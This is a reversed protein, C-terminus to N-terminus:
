SRTLFDTFRASRVMEMNLDRLNEPDLRNDKGSAVIVGQVNKLEKVVDETTAEKKDGALMKFLSNMSQGILGIPSLFDMFSLGDEEATPAEQGTLKKYDARNKATGQLAGGAPAAAVAATEIGVPPGMQVPVYTAVEPQNPTVSSSSSPKAAEPKEDGDGFGLWGLFDNIKEFIVGLGKALKGMIWVVPKLFWTLLKIAGVLVVSIIKILPLIVPMLSKFMEVSMLLLPKLAEFVPILAEVLVKAIDMFIPNLTEFLSQLIPMVADVLPQMASVVGMLMDTLPMLMPMLMDKLSNFVPMLAEMLLTFPSISQFLGGLAKLLKGAGGYSGASPNEEGPKKQANATEEAAKKAGFLAGKLKVLGNFAMLFPIKVYKPTMKDVVERIGGISERIKTSMSEFAGAIKGQEMIQAEGIQIAVAQMVGFDGSNLGKVVAENLEMGLAKAVNKIQPGTMKGIAGTVMTNFEQGLDGKIMDKMMIMQKFFPAAVGGEEKAMYDLQESLTDMGGRAEIAARAMKDMQEISGGFMGESARVSKGINMLTSSLGKEMLSSSAATSNKTFFTIQEDLNGVATRFFTESKQVKNAGEQFSATVQNWVAKAGLRLKEMVPSAEDTMSVNWNWASEFVGM